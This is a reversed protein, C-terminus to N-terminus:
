CIFLHMKVGYVEFIVFKCSAKIDDGKRILWSFVRTKFRKPITSYLDAGSLSVTVARASLM